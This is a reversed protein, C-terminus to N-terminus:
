GLDFASIGVMFVLGISIMVYIAWGILCVVIARGTSEYDLAQRVAVVTTMLQWVWVV